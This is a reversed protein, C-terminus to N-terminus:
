AAGQALRPATGAARLPMALALAAREPALAYGRAIAELPAESACLGGIVSGVRSGVALDPEIALARWARLLGLHAFGRPSRHTAKRTLPTATM